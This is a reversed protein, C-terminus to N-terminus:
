AAKQEESEMGFLEELSKRVREESYTAFLNRIHISIAMDGSMQEEDQKMKIIVATQEKEM